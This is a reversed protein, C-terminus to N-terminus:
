FIDVLIREVSHFKVAILVVCAVCKFIAKIKLFRLALVGLFFIM